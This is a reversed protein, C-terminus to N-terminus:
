SETERDGGRRIALRPDRLMEGIAMTEVLSAGRAGLDVALDPDV